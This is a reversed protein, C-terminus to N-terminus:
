ERSIRGRRGRVRRALALAGSALLVLTAPEPIRDPVQSPSAGTLDIQYPGTQRVAPSHHWSTVPDDAPVTAFLSLAIFYHGPSNGALEGPYIAPLLGVGEDDDYAVRYGASDFVFLMADNLEGYLSTWLHTGDPNAIASFADPDSMFIRYMDVDDPNAEILTGFISDLSGVGPTEQATGPLDGADGVETWLGASVPSLGLGLTMLAALAALGHNPKTM